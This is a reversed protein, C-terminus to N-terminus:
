PEFVRHGSRPAYCQVHVWTPTSKVDEMWLGIKELLDLNNLCFESLKRDKDELDVAACVLHPSKAKPSAVQANDAPRRYGSNVGRYEGFAELLENARPVITNLNGLLESSLEEVKARGMLYETVSIYKM